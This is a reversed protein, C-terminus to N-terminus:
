LNLKVGDPPILKGAIFFVANPREVKSDQNTIHTEQILPHGLAMALWCPSSQNGIFCDSGAILQAVHLLDATPRHPVKCHYEACFLKHEKATGVFLFRDRNKELIRFWPLTPNQYRESRALIIRGKSEPSPVIGELWPVMNVYPIGIHAAQSATLTRLQKYHVRWHELDYDHPCDHDFAISRLYTQKELLPLLAAYPGGEMNRHQWDANKFNGIRLHAGGMQRIIPLAAIIDGICGTHYVTPHSLMLKIGSESREEIKRITEKARGHVSERKASELAADAEEMSMQPLKVGAQALQWCSTFSLIDPKKKAAKLIIAVADTM